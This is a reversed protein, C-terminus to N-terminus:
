QGWRHLCDSYARSKEKQDSSNSSDYSKFGWHSGRDIWKQEYPQIYQEGMSEAVAKAYDVGNKAVIPRSKDDEYHGIALWQWRGKDVQQQCQSKAVMPLAVTIAIASLIMAVVPVVTM